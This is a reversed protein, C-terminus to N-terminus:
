DVAVIGEVPRVVGREMFEKRKAMAGLAYELAGTTGEGRFRLDIEHARWAEYSGHRDIWGMLRARGANYSVLVAELNWEGRHRLLWALHCAGLRVNLQDDNLVQEPTPLEIQLRRAADSASDPILQMLGLAGAYSTQGGRGRSEMFMVAAILYPDVHSELAGGEILEAHGEVFGMGMRDHIEVVIARAGPWLGWSLLGIGSSILLLVVVRGQWGATLRSPRPASEPELM